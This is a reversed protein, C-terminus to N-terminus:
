GKGIDAVNRQGHSGDDKSTEVEGRDVRAAFATTGGGALVKAQALWEERDIRGPFALYSGVWLVNDHTWAAIQSFHWVGLAHLRGENQPGVGRIRKLDDAKGGRPALFGPPRKGPHSAEGEVPGMPAPEPPGVPHPASPPNAIAVAAPKAPAMDAYHREIYAGEHHDKDIEGRDVRAAFPTVGGSALVKAQPAWEERDIRGPFALYSGVWDVNEHTWAAIQAYHWIGLGHLRGENQPGVGRIRQLNDAKGGRPAVLGYPRVGPHKNEDAVPGMRAPEAPLTPGPRPPLLSPAAVVPAPAPRPPPAPIPAAIVPKPPPPAIPAAVVPKPPAPPPPAVPKPAPAPAPKLAAAAVPAAVTLAQPAFMSRLSGGLFCGAVYSAFFWLASELWFGLRGPLLALWAVALGVLFAITAIRFWGDFWRGQPGAANTMWGVVLGVVLTLALWFWLYSFDYAM